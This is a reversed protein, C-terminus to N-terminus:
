LTEVEVELGTDLAMTAALVALFGLDGVEVLVTQLVVLDEVEQCVLNDV